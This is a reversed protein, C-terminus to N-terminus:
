QSQIKRFWDEINEDNEFSEASFSLTPSEEVMSSAQKFSFEYASVCNELDQALAQANKINTSPLLIMFKQTNFRCLVDTKRLRTQYLSSLEKLWTQLDAETVFRSQYKISILSFPTKYRDYLQM